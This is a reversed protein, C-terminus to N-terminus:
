KKKKRKKLKLSLIKFWRKIKKGIGSPNNRLFKTLRYVGYAVGGLVILGIIIALWVPLHCIKKKKASLTGYPLISLHLKGERVVKDKKFIKFYAWYSGAKLKTPLKAIIKKTKFPAVKKMRTVEISELKRKEQNDFIDFVVKTPAAKINGLNEFTMEFKIKGPIYWFLFKHGEELDYVKVGRIKFDFIKSKGVTLDVDVRAGLNISVTGKKQSSLSSTIFTIAGKYRGFKARRPVDVSIIVPVQQKGKPLIFEKGKDISIWKDAQPVKIKVEVKWDEDPNGRVLIVKKEYHCGPVLNNNRVYPSSIGFGAKAPFSFVLFLFNFLFLYILIKSIKNFNM